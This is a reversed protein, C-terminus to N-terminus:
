ENAVAYVCVLIESKVENYVAVRISAYITYVFVLSYDVQQERIFRHRFKEHIDHTCTTGHIYVFISRGPSQGSTAKM